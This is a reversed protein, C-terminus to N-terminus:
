SKTRLILNRLRKGGHRGPSSTWSPHLSCAGRATASGNCFHFPSQTETGAGLRNQLALSEDIPRSALTANSARGRPDGSRSSNRLIRRDRFDPMRGARCGASYRQDEIVSTSSRFQLRCIGPMKWHRSWAARARTSLQRVQAKWTVALSAATMRLSNLIVLAVLTVSPPWNCMLSTTLARQRRRTDRALDSSIWFTEGMEHLPYQAERQRRLERAGNMEAHFSTDGSTSTVPIKRLYLNM